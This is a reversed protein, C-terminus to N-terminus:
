RPVLAFAPVATGEALHEFAVTVSAGVRLPADLGDVLRGILRVEDGGGDREDDGLDLAVDVLVIPLDDAFGPLSSQRLVTWSRVTGPGDVPEFAYSPETSGCAPCVPAPPHVVASCRACRALVLHGRAAAEWFPASQEDPVPLPRSGVDTM